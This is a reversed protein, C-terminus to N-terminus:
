GVNEAGFDTGRFGFFLLFELNKLFDNVAVVLFDTVESEFNVM